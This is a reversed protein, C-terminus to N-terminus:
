AGVAEVTHAFAINIDDLEERKFPVDLIFTQSRLAIYRALEQGVQCVRFSM